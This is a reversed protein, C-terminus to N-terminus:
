SELRLGPGAVNPPVCTELVGLGAKAIADGRVKFGVLAALTPHELVNM